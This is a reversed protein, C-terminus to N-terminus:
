VRIFIRKRYLYAAVATGIALALVHTVFRGTGPAVAQDLFRSVDGGALRQAFPQFGAVGNFFYLALANGGIWIFIIAWAQRGWIDMILYVAGLLCRTLGGTVLVFSSTWISKIIPFQLGWLLGAM